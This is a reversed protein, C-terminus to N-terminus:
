SLLLFISVNDQIMMIAAVTTIIMVVISLVKVPTIM